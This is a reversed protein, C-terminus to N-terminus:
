QHSFLPIRGNVSPRYRWQWGQAVMAPLMPLLAQIASSAITVALSAGPCLHHGHGFSLLRRGCRRLRFSDPQENLEPDRNACALLLLITDGDQLAIREITCDRVVFRRTNQVAPDFRLVEAILETASDPQRRLEDLLEQHRCLAIFANGILGATAEYTQSLLGILNAVLSERDSWGQEGAYGHIRGLLSIRAHGDTLLCKEFYQALQRAATSAAALQRADSLPSLCGVFDHILAAINSLRHEAVGLLSGVIYVPLKFQWRSFGEATTPDDDLAAMSSQICAAVEVDSLGRLAPQVAARSCRHATGENMRMLRSFHRGADTDVIAAPVPEAVPRVHCASHDLVAMVARASCAIWCKLQPDFWLGPGDRLHAYYPYPDFHTAAQTPAIPQQTM